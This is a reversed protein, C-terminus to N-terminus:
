RALSARATRIRTTSGSSDVWAFLLGDRDKSMRPHSSGMGESILISVSRSGTPDIRRLKLQSRPSEIWLVAAAGGSVLQTQTRGVAENDDVRVPTGFTGGADSSFAAYAHGSGGAGTFWAVALSRGDAAISPGNVPCGEIKWGDRHVAAAPTWKGESLRAVAVDRIEDASRDRFAVVPGAASVSMSLPCCDCVRADILAEGRQVGKADFEASRLTMSGADALSKAGPHTARGDLWVILFGGTATPVISAFGHQTKTGDHHPTVPSSWTRGSDGSRAVKLDYAEDDDSNVELWAAVLAGGPLPRVVPVDSPNVMLSENTVVTRPESWGTPTRESFKLAPLDNRIDLWSLITRDGETALQPALTDDGAPSPLQEVRFPAADQARPAQAAAIALLALSACTFALGKARRGLGEARLGSGKM